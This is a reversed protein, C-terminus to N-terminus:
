QGVRVGTAADFAHCAGPALSVRVPDGVRPREGLAVRAVLEDPGASVRVYAEAGTVEVGTVVGPEGEGTLRVGDPRVAVLLRTPDVGRPPPPRLPSGPALRSMAPSGVFRAVFWTAPRTWVEEPPGVQELRGDGLVAVRDGLSLAEAQDHTVHVTTGGLRDHLARLEARTRARLEADLNSLPEDLLVVDPRRVLARALAVRQREGGSLEPPYRALLDVCGVSGAAATAAERARRRGLDRVELGFAINDLVSLHPFLAYSQFVMSVNRRGPRLGTVERGALFVRGGTAPELGAVVRLLTSKGSGSPGLVVLLEGRAVDLDVGHLVERGDYGARLSELRLGGGPAPSQTM